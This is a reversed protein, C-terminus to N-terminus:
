IHWLATSGNLLVQIPQFTPCHLQKHASHKCPLCVTQHIQNNYQGGIFSLGWLVNHGQLQSNEALFRVPLGYDGYVSM